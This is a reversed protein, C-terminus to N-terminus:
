VGKDVGGTMAGWLGAIGAVPEAMAGTAMAMLAERRARARLETTPIGFGLNSAKPM